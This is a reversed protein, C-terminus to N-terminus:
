NKASSQTKCVRAKSKFWKSKGTQARAILEFSGPTEVWWDHWYYGVAPRCSKWESGNISIEVVANPTGSVRVAYHGPWVTEGEQPYDIDIKEVSDVSAKKEKTKTAM